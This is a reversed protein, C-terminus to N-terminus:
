EKSQLNLQFALCEPTNWYVSLFVSRDYSIRIGPIITNWRLGALMGPVYCKSSHAARIGPLSTLIREIMM